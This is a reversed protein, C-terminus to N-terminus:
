KLEKVREDVSRLYNRAKKYTWIASEIPLSLLKTYLSATPHILGDTAGGGRVTASIIGFVVSIVTKRRFSPRSATFNPSEQYNLLQGWSNKTPTKRKTNYNRYMSDIFSFLFNKNHVAIPKVSM